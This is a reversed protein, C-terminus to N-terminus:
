NRYFVYTYSLLFLSNKVKKLEKIIDYKEFAEDTSVCSQYGSIM